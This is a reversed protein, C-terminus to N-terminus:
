VLINIAKLVSHDSSKPLIVLEKWRTGVGHATRELRSKM